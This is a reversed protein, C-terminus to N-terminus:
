FAGDLPSETVPIVDRVRPEPAEPEIGLPVDEDPDREPPADKYAWNASSPKPTTPEGLVGAVDIKGAIYTVEQEAGTLFRSALIDSTIASMDDVRWFLARLEDEIREDIDEEALREMNADIDEDREAEDSEAEDSEEDDQEEEYTGTDSDQIEEFRGLGAERSQCYEEFTVKSYQRVFEPDLDPDQSYEIVAKSDIGCYELAKIWIKTLGNESALITPTEGYANPTYIDAGAAIFVKLIEQLEFRLQHYTSMDWGDSREMDTQLRIDSKLLIHLATDGHHDHMGINAGRKILLIAKELMDFMFSDPFQCTHSLIFASHLESDNQCNLSIFPTGLNLVSELLEVSCERMIRRFSSVWQGGGQHGLLSYDAGGELLIKSYEVRRKRYAEDAESENRLYHDFVPGIFGWKDPELNNPDAGNCVLFKIMEINHGEIAYALLSRGETDRDTLRASENTLLQRLEEVSGFRAVLLVESDNPRM